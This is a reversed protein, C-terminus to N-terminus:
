VALIGNIILVAAGLALFVLMITLSFFGYLCALFENKAAAATCGVAATLLTFGGVSLMSIFVANNVKLAALLPNSQALSGAIFAGVAM